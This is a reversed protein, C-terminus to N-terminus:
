RGRVCSRRDRAALFTTVFLAPMLTLLADGNDILDARMMLAVIIMLVAFGLAGLRVDQPSM